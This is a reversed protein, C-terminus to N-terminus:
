PVAAPDVPFDEVTVADVGALSRVWSALKAAPEGSGRAKAGKGRIRATEDAM